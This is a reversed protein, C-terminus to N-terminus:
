EPWRVERGRVRAWGYRALLSVWDAVGAWLHGLPGTVVWAAVRVRLPLSFRRV